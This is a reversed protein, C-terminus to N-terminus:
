QLEVAALGNACGAYIMTGRMQVTYVWSDLPIVTLLAHTELDWIHITGDRGGSAIIPVGNWTGITVAYVHTRHGELPAGIPEFRDLDWVRVTQDFSVSALVRKGRQEAVAIDYIVAEHGSMVRGEPELAEMDWVQINGADDAAALRQAGPEGYVVLAEVSERSAEKIPTRAAQPSTDVDWLAIKGYREACVAVVRGRRVGLAVARPAEGFPQGLTKRAALDSVRTGSDSAAILLERGQISSIALKGGGEAEIPQRQTELSEHSWFRISRDRSSSVVVSAGLALSHVASSYAEKAVERRGARRPIWVRISGDRGGSVAISVGNRDGVTVADVYTEHGHMAPLVPQLSDANWIHLTGDSSGTAIVPRGDFQGIGVANLQGEALRGILQSSAPDLLNGGCIVFPGSTRSGSALISSIRGFLPGVGLAAEVDTDAVLAGDSLARAKVSGHDDTLTVTRGHLTGLASVRRDHVRDMHSLSEIDWTQLTHGTIAVLTSTDIAVARVSRSHFESLLPSISLESLQESTPPVAANVPKGVPELTDLSWLRVMGDDGGSVIVPMGARRGIALARVAGHSTRIVFHPTLRKWSTARPWWSGALALSRLAAVLHAEGFKMAALALAPAREALDHGLVHATVAYVGAHRAARDSRSQAAVRRLPEPEASILFAPTELLEDLRGTRAAHLSLYRRVYPSASLWNAPLLREVFRAHEDLPDHDRFFEAFKDHFLRYVSREDELSETIYAGAETLAARIDEPAALKQWVATPLGQGFAFALPRLAAEIQRSREPSLRELYQRFATKIDVPLGSQWIEASALARPSKVLGDCELKAVLFTRGAKAAVARAAARALGPDSRYPGADLLRTLAYSELDAPHFYPSSDLDIERPASGLAQFRREGPKTSDPRTGLLLKVSPAAALGALLSRAIEGPRVAEDLADIVITLRKGSQSIDRAFATARAEDGGSDRPRLVIGTVGAIIGMVDDLDRGKVHIPLDVMGPKAVFHALVSSKGSGPDGTVVTAGGEPSALFQEIDTVAKARGTFHRLRDDWHATREIFRRQSELDLGVPLTKDFRPNPFDWRVEGNSTAPFSDVSTDQWQPLGLDNLLDKVFLHRQNMGGFRGEDNRLARALAPTFAGSQAEQRSRSSTIFTLHARALRFQEEFPEWQKGLDLAAGGSECTDLTMLIRRARPREAFTRVLDITPFKRGNGLLLCHRDDTVGHGVYYLVVDDSPERQEFWSDLRELDDRSPNLPPTAEARTYGLHELASAIAALDSEVTPLNDANTYVATGTAIYYLAM